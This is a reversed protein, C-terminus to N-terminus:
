APQWQLLRVQQEGTPNTWTGRVELEFPVAVEARGVVNGVIRIDPYDRLQVVVVNYPVRDRLMPNLAHHVVTASVVTGVPEVAVRVTEVAQCSTCVGSAPHQVHGCTSCQELLLEGSTFYAENHEDLDPLTWGDPMYRDSEATTGSSQDDAEAVTM